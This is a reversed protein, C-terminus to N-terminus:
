MFEDIYMCLGDVDECYVVEFLVLCMFFCCYFMGIGVGVCCVIDELLVVVGYECLVECVVVV